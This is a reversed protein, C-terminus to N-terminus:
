LCSCVQMGRVYMCVYTRVYTTYHNDDNSISASVRTWIMSSASQMECLVLVRPLLIFGRMRGEAIPLYDPLSPEETKSLHSTQFSFESDLGILGGKFFSRVDCGPRASSNTFVYM